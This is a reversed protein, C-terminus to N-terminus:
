IRNEYGKIGKFVNEKLYNLIQQGIDRMDEPTDPDNLNAMFEEYHVTLALFSSAFLEMPNDYPHGGWSYNRDFVIEFARCPLSLRYIRDWQDTIERPKNFLDYYVGHGLEHAFTSLVHKKKLIECDIKIEATPIFGNFNAQEYGFSEFIITNSPFNTVSNFPRAFKYIAMLKHIDCPRICDGIFTMTNKGSGIMVRQGKNNARSIRVEPEKEGPQASMYNGPPSYINTISPDFSLLYDEVKCTISYLLLILHEPDYEELMRIGEDMFPALGIKGPPIRLNIRYNKIIYRALQDMEAQNMKRLIGTIRYEDIRKGAAVDAKLMRAWNDINCQMYKDFGKAGADPRYKITRAEIIAVQEEASIATTYIGMNEGRYYIDDFHAFFIM